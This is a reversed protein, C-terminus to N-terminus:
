FNIYKRADVANSKSYNWSGEHLEFHLHPGTSHGTNGMYGIREGKQVAQGESVLRNEMHAYVTTYIKGDVNHTIFVVNGYSNSYYSRFVIGTAAAVIPVDSAAKGIDTGAHLTGWRSGFNSTVPGNAPRMFAGATVAPTQGGSSTHSSSSSGNNKNKAQQAARRREEELRRQEAEWQELLRQQYAQQNDLIQKQENMSLIEKEIDKEKEKLQAMIQNKQEKQQELQAKLQEQEKLKNELEELKNSVEEKKKEVLAKEEMHQKLIEKDQQMIASVAGARDVFDSFSQAGLLVDLYSVMGGSEQLSRARDKLLADRKKIRKKLVEIEDKLQAIQHKTQKIDKENQRINEKTEGVAMDIRKMEEALQQQEQEIKNLQQKAAKEDQEINSRKEQISKINNEYQNASADYTAGFVGSSFIAASVLVKLMRERAM